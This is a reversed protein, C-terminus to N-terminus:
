ACSSTKGACTPFDRGALSSKRIHVSFGIKSDRFDVAYHFGSKEEKCNRGSQQAQRQGRLLRIRIEEDIETDALGVHLGPGHRGRLVLIEVVGAETEHRGDVHGIEAPFHSVPIRGHRRDAALAVIETGHVEEAALHYLAQRFLVPHTDDVNGDCSRFDLEPVLVGVLLVDVALPVPHLGYDGLVAAIGVLPQDAHGANGLLVADDLTYQHMLSLGVGGVRQPRLLDLLDVVVEAAVKVEIRILGRQKGALELIGLLSADAGVEVSRDHGTQRFDQRVRVYDRREAALAGAVLEVEARLAHAQEAVAEGVLHKM